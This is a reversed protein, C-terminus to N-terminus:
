RCPARADAGVAGMLGRGFKDLVIAPEADVAHLAVAFGMLGNYLGADPELEVAAVLGRAMRVAADGYRGDGFHAEAELLAFVVGAGGSYLTPDPPAAALLWEGAGAALEEAM